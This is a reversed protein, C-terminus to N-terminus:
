IARGLGFLRLQQELIPTLECSEIEGKIFGDINQEM